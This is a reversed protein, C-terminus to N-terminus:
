RAHTCSPGLSVEDAEVRAIAAHLVADLAAGFSASADHIAVVARREARDARSRLRVLRWRAWWGGLTGKAKLTLRKNGAADATYRPANSGDRGAVESKMRYAVEFKALLSELTANLIWLRRRITQLQDRLSSSCSRNSWLENRGKPLDTSRSRHREM